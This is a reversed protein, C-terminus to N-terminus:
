SVNRSRDSEILEEVGLEDGAGGMDVNVLMVVSLDVWGPLVTMSLYTDDDNGADMEEAAISMLM